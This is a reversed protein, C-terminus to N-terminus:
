IQEPLQSTSDYSGSVPDEVQKEHKTKLLEPTVEFEFDKPVNQINPEHCSVRGTSTLTQCEPYIRQMKLGKHETAAKSM